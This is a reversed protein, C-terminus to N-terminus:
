EIDFSISLEILLNYKKLHGEESYSIKWSIKLLESNEDIPILRVDDNTEVDVKNGNIWYEDGIPELIKIYGFGVNKGIPLVIHIKFDDKNLSIKYPLTKKQEDCLELLNDELLTKSIKAKLRNLQDGTVNENEVAVTLSNLYPTNQAKRISNVQRMERSIKDLDNIKKIKPIMLVIVVADAVIIIVFIIICTLLGELPIDCSSVIGFIILLIWSAIITYIYIPYTKFIFKNNWKDFLDNWRAEVDKHAQTVENESRNRVLTYENAKYFAVNKIRQKSKLEWGFVSEQGLIANENKEILKIKKEEM